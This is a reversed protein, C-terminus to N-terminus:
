ASTSAVAVDPRATVTRGARRRVNVLVVAALVLAGGAAQVPGLREGFVAMALLVTVLPEVTSVISATAAGVRQLGLLFALVPIVTCIVAVAAVAAWGGTTADLHPGGRVATFTGIVVAAATVILATLLVPDAEGVTRDAALIYATYAVAAGLRSCWAPADSRRAAGRARAGARRPWRSRASGGAPRRERGPRARSCM